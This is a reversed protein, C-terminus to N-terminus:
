EGPLPNSMRERKKSHFITYVQLLWFPIHWSREREKMKYFPHGVFAAPPQSLAHRGGAIINNTLVFIDDSGPYGSRRNWELKKKKKLLWRWHHWSFTLRQSLLASVFQSEKGSARSSGSRRGATRRRGFSCRFRYLRNASWISPRVARTTFELPSTTLPVWYSHAITSRTM